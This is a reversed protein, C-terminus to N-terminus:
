SVLAWLLPPCNQAPLESAWRCLGVVFFPQQCQRTRCVGVSASTKWTSTESTEVFCKLGGAQGMVVVRGAAHVLEHQAEGAVSLDVPDRRLTSPVDSTGSSSSSDRRFVNGSLFM